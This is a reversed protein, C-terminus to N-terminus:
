ASVNLLKVARTARTVPALGPALLSRRLRPKREGLGAAAETEACPTACRDAAEHNWAAAPEASSTSAGAGNSGASAAADSESSDTSRSGPVSHESVDGRAASQAQARACARARHAQLEQFLRIALPSEPMLESLRAPVSAVRAGLQGLQLVGLGARCVSGLEGRALSSCLDEAELADLGARRSLSHVLSQQVGRLAQRTAERRVALWKRCIRWLQALHLLRGLQAWKTLYLLKGLRDAHCGLASLVHFTQWFYGIAHASQPLPLRRRPYTLPESFPSSCPARARQAAGPPVLRRSVHLIRTVHFRRCLAWVSLWQELASEHWECYSLATDATGQKCRYALASVAWADALQEPRRLKGRALRAAFRAVRASVRVVRQGVGALGGAYRRAPEDARPVLTGHPLVGLLDVLLWGSLLRRKLSTRVDMILTGDPTVCGTRLNLLLELAFWVRMLGNLAALAEASLRLCPWWSFLPVQCVQLLVFLSTLADWLRRAFANPHVMRAWWPRQRNLRAWKAESAGPGLEAAPLSASEGLVRRVRLRPRLIRDRWPRQRLPEFSTFTVARRRIPVAPSVLLESPVPLAEWM